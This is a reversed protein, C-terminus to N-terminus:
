HLLKSESEVGHKRNIIDNKLKIGRVISICNEHMSAFEKKAKM